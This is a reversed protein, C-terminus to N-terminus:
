NAYPFLVGPQSSQGDIQITIPLNGSTGLSPVTFNIQFEGPAVLGSFDAAFTKQGITVTVSHTSASVSVAGAPSVALSNAFMVVTDGAKAKRAGPFVAPDGLRTGDLFVASPFFTMGGDLSYPFIAPAVPVAATM